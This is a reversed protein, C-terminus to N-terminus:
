GGISTFDSMGGFHLTHRGPPLPALLIHVGDNVAPSTSGEPATIGFYELVNNDPLPGFTFLPSQVRYDPLNPVQRGDVVCFLSDPVIFDSFFQACDRLEEETDGAGEITSCETNNLPFFLAKGVPITCNRDAQ